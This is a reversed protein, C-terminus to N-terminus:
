SDTPKNPYIANSGDKKPRWRGRICYDPEKKRADIKAQIKANRMAIRNQVKKEGREKARQNRYEIYRKRIMMNEKRWRDTKSNKIREDIRQTQPPPNRRKKCMKVRKLQVERNEQYWEKRRKKREEQHKKCYETVRKNIRERNKRYYDLMYEKRQNGNIYSLGKRM